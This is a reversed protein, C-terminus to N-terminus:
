SNASASVANTRPLCDAVVPALVNGSRGAVFCSSKVVGSALEKRVATTAGRELLKSREGRSTPIKAADAAATRSTIPRAIKALRTFRGAKAADFGLVVAL